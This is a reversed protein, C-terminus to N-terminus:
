SDALGVPQDEVRKPYDLWYGHGPKSHIVKAWLGKTDSRRLESIIRHFNDNNVIKCAEKKHIARGNFTPMLARVCAYQPATLVPMRQGLVLPQRGPGRLVVPHKLPPTKVPKAPPTHNGEGRGKLTARPSAGGYQRVLRSVQMMGYPTGASCRFEGEEYIQVVIENLTLGERRLEVMRRAAPADHEKIAQRRDAPGRGLAAKALAEYEAPDLHRRLARLVRNRSWHRTGHFRKDANARAAIAEFDLRERWWDRLVPVLAAHYPDARREAAVRAVAARDEESAYHNVVSSIRVQTWFRGDSNFKGEHNLREAAEQQSLGQKLLAVVDAIIARNYAQQRAILPKLGRGQPKREPEEGM